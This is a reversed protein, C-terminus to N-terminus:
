CAYGDGAIAKHIDARCVPDVTLQKQRSVSIVPASALDLALLRM